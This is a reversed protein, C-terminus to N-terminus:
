RLKFGALIGLVALFFMVGAIGGLTLFLTIFVSPLLKGQYKQLESFSSMGFAKLLVKAGAQFASKEAPKVSVSQNTYVSINGQYLDKTLTIFLFIWPGIMFLLIFLLFDFLSGSTKPTYGTLSQVLKIFLVGSVPISIIFLLNKIM